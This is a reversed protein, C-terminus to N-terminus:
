RRPRAGSARRQARNMLAPEESKAYADVIESVLRHRVVDASTLEAFHIDDIGDLIHMAARLGSTAGGPLDVQTIDGTVVVKSGFGLRTLFMKMQEGTTNQAEDLIIFADNLTNHTLLFDETVYLSDEAAVQICVAEETGAPEIRHVFRMPRGGGTADYKAVKRALRFPAVGEPLRIDLIHADARHHVDRGRALGPKRVQAPRTRAYAVGGLSQVLFVVHDRLRDSVTTFQIRCTREQQPVPDGDSDFLGQLVALRVDPTNFLYDDPVFKTNSKAGILGLRRMAGTVPNEITIVEGPTTIRNLVYDIDSKRRPEIGPILRGLAEALEPDATTFGPTATCSFCGDGLLLGLAYPDLPVPRSEFDVPSSLLPLEYRHQHAARLNGLMEKTQMVRALRGRRRDAHTYVSWLHDGSALTSSGDQTYVRYIEKFGQPYVGLVETERGDSGIVFDGVRLDGIPRFGAPTLVKTFLPQARGRMFALPAVEIVGASMLKPILEPDMMDHLADYLPRLYPDIKEYLTGPLFGLREGAEVAPRTLIIRSVQKTQLANVAKAMALYTKGTGAPGIGFVITHADIADVYRKQNLTKPRITKGRRSLIDLTLVEAPSEDGTGTLMAVSHRVADPTLRQGSDVIAMLESIVREALAVDAPEGSLTLANGRVHIDAALIRELARLNEDASGLLGVVLDPPVNISSRVPSDSDANTERPTM